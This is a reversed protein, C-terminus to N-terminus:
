GVVQSMIMNTHGARGAPVGATIVVMEGVKLKKKRLFADIAHNVCEDTTDPLPLCIAEVGWVVAMQSRVKENWAVCLIPTKPRFKSVFRATEGSTTTTIIAQASLEAALEAASHAVAETQSVGSESKKIFRKEQRSRDYITEAKLVLRAITKVSEIPFEGAATEGSLMVADSGDLVANVVDTAEARTPRGTHMMSELMQTATIVPKGADGCKEIIRKQAVPVDEINMQLGLDGRAVMVLDALKLLEEINELAARTEIKACIRISPDYKDIERRLARLDASDRVYSLAIYDAGNKCAQEIDILDKDTLSPVDFSKGVVTLGKRSKVAGGCVVLAEFVLGTKATIRVEVEGDGLLIRDGALLVDLIEQQDIPLQVDPNSPPGIIVTSGTAIDVEGSKIEALRFKPGALDALVAIPDGQNSREKVSKIWAGRTDWDGHSCNIRAVNMGAEVLELIEDPTATAPGLTCVIKTRRIM